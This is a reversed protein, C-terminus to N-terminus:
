GDVIGRLDIHVEDPLLDLYEDPQNTRNIWQCYFGFTKAGAIDWRNSSQFSIDKAPADFAMPVLEYVSQSAKYTKIPDVSIVEDLLDDVAAHDVASKLM